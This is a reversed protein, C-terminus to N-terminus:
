DSVLSSGQGIPEASISWAISGGGGDSGACDLVIYWTSGATDIIRIPAAQRGTLPVDAANNVMANAFTGTITYSTEILDGTIDLVGCLDTKIAGQILSIKTNNAVAGIAVTVKGVIETINMSGTGVFITDTLSQPLVATARSINIKDITSISDLLNSDYQLGALISKGAAYKSASPLGRVSADQFLSSLVPNYSIIFIDGITADASFGIGADGVTDLVCMGSETRFTQIQCSEGMPAGLDTTYLCNIWYGTLSAGRISYVLEPISLSDRHAGSANYTLPGYTQQAEVILPLSLSLIVLSFLIIKKM